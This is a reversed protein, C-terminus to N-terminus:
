YLKTKKSAIGFFHEYTLCWMTDIRARGKVVKQRHYLEYMEYGSYTFRM